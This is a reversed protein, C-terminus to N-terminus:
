AEKWVGKRPREKASRRAKRNQDRGCMDKTIKSIGQFSSTKQWLIHSLLLPKLYGLKSTNFPLSEEHLLFAM